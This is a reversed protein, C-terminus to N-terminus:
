CQIEVEFNGFKGVLWKELGLPQETEYVTQVVGTNFLNPIKRKDDMELDENQLNDM